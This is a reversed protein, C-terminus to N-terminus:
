TISTSLVKVLSVVLLTREVGPVHDRSWLKLIMNLYTLVSAAKLSLLQSAHVHVHVHIYPYECVYKHGCVVCVCVCVCVCM